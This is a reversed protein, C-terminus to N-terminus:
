PYVKNTQVSKNPWSAHVHYFFEEGHSLFV